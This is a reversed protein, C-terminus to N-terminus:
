DEYRVFRDQPLTPVVMPNMKRNPDHYHGTKDNWFKVFGRQRSRGGFMIEGAFEVANGDAIDEHTAVVSQNPRVSRRAVILRGAQVVFIHLGKATFTTGGGDQTKWRGDICVLSFKNVLCPFGSPENNAFLEPV